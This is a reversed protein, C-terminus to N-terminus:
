LNNIFAASTLLLELRIFLKELLCSSLSFHVFREAVNDHTIEIAQPGAPCHTGDGDKFYYDFRCCVLPDPGCSHRIAYTAFPLLHTVLEYSGDEDTTSRKCSYM